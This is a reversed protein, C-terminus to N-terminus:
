APTTTTFIVAQKMCNSISFGGMFYMPYIELYQDIPKKSLDLKFDLDPHVNLKIYEENLIYMHGTAINPDFLFDIGQFSLGKFSGDAKEDTNFRKLSSLYEEYIGYWEATTFIVSPREGNYTLKRITDSIFQVMQPGTPNGTIKYPAAGIDVAVNAWWANKSRDITGVINDPVDAVLWPIGPMQKDVLKSIPTWTAAAMKNTFSREANTKRSELLSYKRTKSGKNRAWEDGNIIINENAMYWDFYAPQMTTAKTTDLHDDGRFWKFTPNEAYMLDVELYQGGPVHKIHGKKRLRSWFPNNKTINDFLKPQWEILTTTIIDNDTEPIAM